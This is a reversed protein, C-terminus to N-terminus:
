PQAFTQHARLVASDAGISLSGETFRELAVRTLEALLTRLWVARAPVDLGLMTEVVLCVGLEGAFASLWDHRDALMLIQRYDRAEFLKEAGRHMFGVQPDATVIVDDPDVTLVLRILGHAAPHHAPLALVADATGPAASGVAVVLRRTGPADAPRDAPMATMSARM